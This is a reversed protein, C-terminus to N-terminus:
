DTSKYSKPDLAKPSWHRFFEHVKDASYGKGEELYASNQTHIREGKENLIVFVPFGFRQPFGLTALIPENKNEPSHNLHVTVYNADQLQRLSDNSSVFNHFRICWICWNGGVQLLVNKHEKRAVRIASDIQSQANLKPDYLHSQPAATKQAQAAVSTLALIAALAFSKMRATQSNVPPAAQLLLRKPPFVAISLRFGDMSTASRSAGPHTTTLSAPWISRSAASSRPQIFVRDPATIQGTHPTDPLIPIM